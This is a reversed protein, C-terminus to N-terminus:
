VGPRVPATQRRLERAKHARLVRYWFTLELVVGLVLAGAVGAGWGLAYAALAGLLCLATVLHKM